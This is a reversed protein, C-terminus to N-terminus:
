HSVANKIQDVSVNLKLGWKSNSPGEDPMSPDLKVYGMPLNKALEELLRTDALELTELLFGARRIVSIKDFRHMYGILKQIDIRTKAAFFAKAVEILGGCNEPLSAGDLLTRELDSVSLNSGRMVEFGFFRGPPAWVFHTLSGGLNLNKRRKTSTVYVDFSPQTALRHIDFASAHSLFYPTNEMSERVLSYRDELHFNTSGLEFPVLNYLGRRVHTVLGRATAAHILSAARAHSVGMVEAAKSLNFM